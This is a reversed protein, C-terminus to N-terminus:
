PDVFEVKMDIASPAMDSGDAATPARKGYYYPLLTADLEILARIEARIMSRMQAGSTKPFDPHCLDRRAYDIWDEIKAQMSQRYLIMTQAPDYKLDKCKSVFEPERKKLSAIGPIRGRKREIGKGTPM